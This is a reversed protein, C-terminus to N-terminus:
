GSLVEPLGGLLLLFSPPVLVFFVQLYNFSHSVSFTLCVIQVSLEQIKLNKSEKSRHIEAYTIFKHVIFKFIHM